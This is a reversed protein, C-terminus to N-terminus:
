RALAVIEVSTLGPSEAVLRNTTQYTTFGNVVTAPGLTWGGVRAVGQGDTVVSGGSVAGGGERVSFTVPIGARAVRNGYADAIWVAPATLLTAGPPAVQFNGEQILIRAPAGAVATAEFRVSLAGSKATLSYIGPRHGLRWKAVRVIGDQGTIPAHVATVPLTFEGGMTFTILAGSVPNRYRDLVRVAPAIPVETMVPVQQGNGEVIEIITAPGAYATATFVFSELGPSAATVTYVGARTGLTWSSARAAGYADTVVPSGVLRGGDDAATFSVPVGPVRNGFRDVAAVVPANTVATGVPAARTGGWYILRTPVDARGNARFEVFRRVDDALVATLTNTQASPGLVWAVSATGNADTTVTRAQQGDVLGGGHTIEFAVAADPVINGDADTVRVALRVPLESGVIGVQDDGAIREVGLVRAPTQSAVGTPPTSGEPTHEVQQPATPSAADGCAIAVLLLAAPLLSRIFRRQDPRLGVRTNYMLDELSCGASFALMTDLRAPGHGAIRTPIGFCDM